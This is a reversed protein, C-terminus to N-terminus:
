MEDQSSLSYKSDFSSVSRRDFVVTTPHYVANNPLELVKTPHFQIKTSSLLQQYRQEQVKQIRRVFFVLGILIALLLIAVTSIAAIHTTYNPKTYVRLYVSQKVETGEIQPYSEQICETIQATCTYSGTNNNTVQHLDYVASLDAEDTTNDYSMQQLNQSCNDNDQFCEVSQYLWNFTVNPIPTTQNHTLLQCLLQVQSHEEVIVTKPQVLLTFSRSISQCYSHETSNNDVMDQNDAEKEEQEDDVYEEDAESM